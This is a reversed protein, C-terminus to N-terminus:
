SGRNGDIENDPVNFSVKSKVDHLGGITHNRRILRRLQFTKRENEVNSKVENEEVNKVEENSTQRELKKISSELKRVKDVLTVNTELVHSLSTQISTMKGQLIEVNEELIKRKSKKQNGNNDFDNEEVPEPTDPTEMIQPCKVDNRELPLNLERRRRSSRKKKPVLEM